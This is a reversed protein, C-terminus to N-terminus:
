GSRRIPRVTSSSENLGRTGAILDRELPKVDDGLEEHDFARRCASAVGGLFTTRPAVLVSPGDQLGKAAPEVISSLVLPRTGNREAAQVIQEVAQEIKEVSDIFPLTIREFEIGDFQTLLSNGLMEVTIGTRDSIFFVTRKTTM